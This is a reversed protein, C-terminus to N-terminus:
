LLTIREDNFFFAVNAFDDSFVFDVTTGKPLYVVESQHLTFTEGGHISLKIWGETVFFFEDYPYTLTAEGTEKAAAALVKGDASRFITSKSGGFQPFDEWKFSNWHGYPVHQTATSGATNAQSIPMTSNGNLELSKASPHRVSSVQLHSAGHIKLFLHDPSFSFAIQVCRKLM